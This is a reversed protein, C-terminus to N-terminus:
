RHAESFKELYRNVVGTVYQADPVTLKNHMPLCVHKKAHKLCKVFSFRRFDNEWVDLHPTVFDYLATSLGINEQELHDIFDSKVVYSPLEVMLKYLNPRCTERNGLLKIDPHLAGYGYKMLHERESIRKEMTEAMVSAVVGQMETMHFNHGMDVFEGKSFMQTRGYNKKRFVYEALAVGNTSLLGGQGSHLQPKTGALSTIAIDGITGVSHGHVLTGLAQSLDEIMYVEHMDCWERIERIDTPAWGGTWQFVAAQFQKHEYAMELDEVLPCMDFRNIDAWVIDMPFEVSRAGIAAMVPSPFINAQFCMSKVGLHKQLYPILCEYASTCSNFAVAFKKNTLAGFTRQLGEQWPGMMLYGSKFLEDMRILLRNQEEVTFFVDLGQIPPHKETKKTEM